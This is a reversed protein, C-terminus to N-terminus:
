KEDDCEPSDDDLAICEPMSRAATLLPPKDCEEDDVREANKFNDIENPVTRVGGMRMM